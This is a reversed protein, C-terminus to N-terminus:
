SQVQFSMSAERCFDAMTFNAGFPFCWSEALQVEEPQGLSATLVNLFSKTHSRGEQCGNNNSQWGLHSDELGRLDGCPLPRLDGKWLYNDAVMWYCGNSASFVLCIPAKPSNSPEDDKKIKKISAKIPHHHGSLVEIEIGSSLSFKFIM